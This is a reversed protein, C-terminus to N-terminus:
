YQVSIQGNDIVILQDYSAFVDWRVAVANGQQGNYTLTAFVDESASNYGQYVKSSLETSSYSELELGVCFANSVSQDTSPTQNTIQALSYSHPTHRNSVSGLSQEMNALM